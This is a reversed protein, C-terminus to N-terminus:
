YQGCSRMLAPGTIMKLQQFPLKNAIVAHGTM